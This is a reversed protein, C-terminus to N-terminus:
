IYKIFMFWVHVMLGFLLNWVANNSYFEKFEYGNREYCLMVMYSKEGLWLEPLRSWGLGDASNSTRWMGAEFGHLRQFYSREISVSLISNTGHSSKKLTRGPSFFGSRRTGWTTTSPPWIRRSPPARTRRHCATRSPAFYVRRRRTSTGTSAIEPPSSTMTLSWWQCFPHTSFINRRKSRPHRSSSSGASPVLISFLISHAFFRVWWFAVSLMPFRHVTNTCNIPNWTRHVM